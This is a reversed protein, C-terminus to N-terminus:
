SFLKHTDRVSVTMARLRFINEAAFQFAATHLRQRTKVAVSKAFGARVVAATM